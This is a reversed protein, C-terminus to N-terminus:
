EANANLPGDEDDYASAEAEAAERAKMAALDKAFESEYPQDFDYSVESAEEVPEPQPKYAPAEYVPAPAPASAEAPETEAAQANSFSYADASHEVTAAPLVPEQAKGRRRRRPAEQQNTVANISISVTRVAVGCNTEVFQRIARQMNMTITPVHSGNVISAVVGIAIADDQNDIGIKMDTIGDISGVSQRVMQEIASIAIRVKGSDSSDVTIFGRESRKRRKFILCVQVVALIVYVALLAIGIAKVNSIGIASVLMDYYKTLFDPAILYVAFAAVILLSILWHFFMLIRKGVSLKM